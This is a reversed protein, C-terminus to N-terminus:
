IFSRWLNPYVLVSKEVPSTMLINANSTYTNLYLTKDGYGNPNGEIILYGENSGRIRGGNIAGFCTYSAYDKGLVAAVKSGLYKEQGYARLTGANLQVDGENFLPRVTAQVSRRM